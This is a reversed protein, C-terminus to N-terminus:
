CKSCDVLPGVDVEINCFSASWKIFRRIPDTFLVCCLDIGDDDFTGDVAM